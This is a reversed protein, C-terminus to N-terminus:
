IKSDTVQLYTNTLSNVYQDLISFLSELSSLKEPLPFGKQAQLLEQSKIRIQEAAKDKQQLTNELLFVLNPNQTIRDEEIDLLDGIIDNQQQLNFILWEIEINVDNPILNNIIHSYLFSDISKIQLYLSLEERTISKNKASKKKFHAEATIFIQGLQTTLTSLTLKIGQNFDTSRLIADIQDRMKEKITNLKTIGTEVLPDIQNILQHCQNIVQNVQQAKTKDALKLAIAYYVLNLRNVPFYQDESVDVKLTQAYHKLEELISSQSM